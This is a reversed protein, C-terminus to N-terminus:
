VLKKTTKLSELVMIAKKTDNSPVFIHDHFYGAVVNCSVNQKALAESFAATLGVAELSSHVNLTIWSFTTNYEFGHNQAIEKSIIITFGEKEKFFGAIENLNIKSLDNVSHIIWEGDNLIPEISKLIENLNIIGKELKM